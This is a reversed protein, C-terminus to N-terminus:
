PSGHEEPVAGALEDLLLSMKEDEQLRWRALLKGNIYVTPISNIKLDWTAQVDEQLAAEVESSIMTEAFVEPDLEFGRAVKKFNDMNFRQYNPWLWVHMRWFLDTGGLAGAAESARAALCAQPHFTKSINPNCTQDFPCHRFTYRIGPQKAVRNRMIEDVRRTHKEQYDGFVVVDAVVASDNEEGQSWRFHDPPLEIKPSARWDEVIKTDADAPVDGADGWSRAPPNATSIQNVARTLMGSQRVGKVQVGNIFVMPTYHLGLSRGEDIDAKIGRITKEENMVQFFKEPDYKLRVLDARLQDDTFDGVYKRFLLDHMEFFGKDGKLIGAAEAAQAARCANPHMNAGYRALYENCDSSLPFHKVSVAIDSRGTMVRQLEEEVRKCVECQFDSFLVVRLAARKPGRVYRGVFPTSDENSAAIVEAVSADTERRAKEVSARVQLIELPIMIVSVLAIVALTVGVDNELIRPKRWAFEVCALLGFNALHTTICYVCLYQKVMMIVLFALSGAAGVRVLIRFTPSLGRRAFGLWATLLGLFWALGVHSMPWNLGPIKGFASSQADACASGAGCGPLDLHAFHSFVLMGSACLAILLCLVGAVLLPPPLPAGGQNRPEEVTSAAKEPHKRHPKKSM